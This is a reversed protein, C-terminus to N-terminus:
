YTEAEAQSVRIMRYTFKKKLVTQEAYLDRFVFEKENLKLIEYAAPGDEYLIGDRITWFRHTSAQDSPLMRWTGNPLYVYSHRPSEWYGCLKAKLQADRRTEPEHQAYCNLALGVGILCLLKELWRKMRHTMLHFCNQLSSSAKPPEDCRRVAAGLYRITESIHICELNDFVIDLCYM